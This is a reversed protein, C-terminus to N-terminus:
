AELRFHSGTDDKEVTLRAQLVDAMAPVHSIVIMLPFMQSVNALLASVNSVHAPSLSGFGEDIILTEMPSGARQLLVWSLAVRLCLDIEFREGGSYVEYPSEGQNDTVMIDLTDAIRDSAKQAKQTVLAVRMGTTSAMALLRNAEQEIEPIVTELILLPADKYAQELTRLDAIAAQYQRMATEILEIATAAATGVHIREDLVGAQLRLAALAKDAGDKTAQAQALTATANTVPADVDAAFRADADLGALEVRVTAIEGNTARATEMKGQWQAELALVEGGAIEAQHMTFYAGELAAKREGYELRLTQRRSEAEAKEQRRGTRQDEIRGVEYLVRSSEASLAEPKITSRAANLAATAAEHAAIAATLAAQLEPLAAKQALARVLFRCAAFEGAGGCPVGTLLGADTEGSQLAARARAVDSGARSEVMAAEREQQAHEQQWATLKVQLDAKMKTEAQYGETDLANLRDIEATLATGTAETEALAAKSVEHADRLEGVKGATSKAVNIRGTLGELAVQLDALAAKKATLVSNARAWAARAAGVAVRTEQAHRLAESAAQWEAAAKDVAAQSGQLPSELAARETKAAEGADVLPRQAHVQGEATAAKEALAGAEGRAQARWTEFRDNRLLGNVIRLRDKRDATCFSGSKGQLMFSTATVVDSELGITQLIRKETDPVNAGDKSEEAGGTTLWFRLNTTHTKTRINRERLVRYTQGSAAFRLDVSGHDTGKKILSDIPARAEGFLAYLIADVITSKGAGTEGVVIVSQVDQLNLTESAYSGFNTLTIDLLRM